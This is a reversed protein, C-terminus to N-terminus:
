IKGNVIELVEAEAAVAAAAIKAAEACLKEFAAKNQPIASPMDNEGKPYKKEHSKQGDISM